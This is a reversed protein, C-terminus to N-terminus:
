LYCYDLYVDTYFHLNVKDWLTFDKSRNVINAKDLIIILSIMYNNETLTSLTNTPNLEHISHASQVTLRSNM